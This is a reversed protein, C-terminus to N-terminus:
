SSGLTPQRTRSLPQPAWETETTHLYLSMTSYNERIIDEKRVEHNVKGESGQWCLSKRSDLRFREIGSALKREVCVGDSKGLGGVPLLLKQTSVKQTQELPTQTVTGKVDRKRDVLRFAHNQSQQRLPDHLKPLNGHWLTCHWLCHRACLLRRSTDAIMSGTGWYRLERNIVWAFPQSRQSQGLPPLHHSSVRPRAGGSCIRPTLSGWPGGHDSPQKDTVTSM